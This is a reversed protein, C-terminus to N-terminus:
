QRQDLFYTLRKIQHFAPVCRRIACIMWLLWENDNDAVRSSIIFATYNFSWGKVGSSWTRTMREPSPWVLSFLEGNDQNPPIWGWGTAPSPSGGGSPGWGGGGGGTGGVGGDPAWSWSASWCAPLPIRCSAPPPVWWCAPPPGECSSTRSLPLPSLRPPPLGAMTVRQRRRHRSHRPQHGDSSRRREEEEAAALHM